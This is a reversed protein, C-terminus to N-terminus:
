SARRTGSGVYQKCEKLTRAILVIEGNEVGGEVLVWRMSEHMWDGDCFTGSSGDGLPSPHPGACSLPVQEHSANWVGDETRWEGTDAKVWRLSEPQGTM